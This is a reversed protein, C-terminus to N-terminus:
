ERHLERGVAKIFSVIGGKSASYASMTPNGEKAANSAILVIRGYQNPIMVRAAHKTVIASGVLNVEQRLRFQDINMEWISARMDDTDTIGASHLVFDVKDAEEVVRDFFAAVDTEKTIDVAAAATSNPVLRNLDTAASQARDPSIDCFYLRAGERVLQRAAAHAIDRPTQARRPEVEHTAETVVIGLWSWARRARDVARASRTM